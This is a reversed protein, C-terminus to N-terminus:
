MNDNASLNRVRKTDLATPNKSKNEGRPTRKQYKRISYHSRGKKKKKKKFVKM